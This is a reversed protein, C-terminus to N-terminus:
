TGRPRNTDAYTKCARESKMKPGPPLDWKRIFKRAYFSILARGCGYKEALRTATAEDDSIVGTAFSIVDIGFQANDFQRIERAFVQFTRLMDEGAAREFHEGAKSKLCAAVFAREGIEHITDNILAVAEREDTDASATPEIMSVMPHPLLQHRQRV